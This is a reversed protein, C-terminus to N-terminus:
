NVPVAFPPNASPDAPNWTILGAATAAELLRHDSAIFLFREDTALEGRVLLASALQLADLSRLRHRQLLDVMNGDVGVQPLHELKADLLALERNREALTLEGLLMRRQLASCVELKAIASVIFNRQTAEFLYQQLELSGHEVLFLKAFSSSDLFCVTM